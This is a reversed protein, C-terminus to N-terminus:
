LTLEIECVVREAPYRDRAYRLLENAAKALGVDTGQKPRDLTRALGFAIPCENEKQEIGAYPEGLRGAEGHVVDVENLTATSDHAFARLFADYGHTSLCAPRNTQHKRPAAPRPRAVREEDARVTARKRRVTELLDEPPEGRSGAECDARRRVDQAVCKGAREELVAAVDEAQLADEAV